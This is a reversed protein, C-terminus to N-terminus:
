RERNWRAREVRYKQASQKLDWRSRCEKGVRREESRFKGREGAKDKNDYQSALVKQVDESKLELTVKIRHQDNHIKELAAKGIFEHDYKIMFGYGLDFPTVYYDEIKKSYFSGGLSANGEFSDAPLW